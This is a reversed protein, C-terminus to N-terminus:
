KFYYLTGPALGDLQFERYTVQSPRYLQPADAPIPNTTSYQLLSDSPLNTNWAVLASTTTEATTYFLTITLSKPPAASLPVGLFLLAFTVAVLHHQLTKM